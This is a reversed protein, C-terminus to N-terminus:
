SESLVAVRLNTRALTKGDSQRVHHIQWVQMSRGLHVPTGTSVIVDGARASRYFDTNNNVGVVAPKAGAAIYGAVSGVTEGLSCYVGGNALGWPQLHKEGVTLEAVVREPCVETFVTGLLIDYGGLGHDLVASNLSAVEDPSLSGKTAQRVLRLYERLGEKKSNIPDEAGGNATIKRESATESM